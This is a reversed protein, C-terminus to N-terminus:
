FRLNGFYTGCNISRANFMIFRRFNVLSFILNVTLGNGAEYDEDVRLSQRINIYFLADNRKSVFGITYVYGDCRYVIQIHDYAHIKLM